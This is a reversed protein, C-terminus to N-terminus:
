NVLYTGSNSFIGILESFILSIISAISVSKTPMMEMHGFVSSLCEPDLRARICDELMDPYQSAVLIGFGTRLRDIFTDSGFSQM